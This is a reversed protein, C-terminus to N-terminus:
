RTAQTIAWAKLEDTLPSEDIVNLPNGWLSDIWEGLAKNKLYDRDETGIIRGAQVDLIKILWYGGRSEVTDDRIPASLAGTQTAANFVFNDIAAPLQGKAITGMNGGDDKATGTQSREKAIAAFEEGANLRQIVNQAEEESGLLMGQLDAEETDAAKRVVKIVWYGVNKVAGDDRLAPSLEGSSGQFAFDLPITTTFTDKYIDIAHWGYDGKKSKSYVNVSTEALTAFDGTINSSDAMKARAETAQKETELLVALIHRQDATQPIKPDLYENRLKEALLGTRILDRYVATDPSKTEALKKKVEDTTVTYGLQAANQRILENQQIDRAITNAYYSVYEPRGQTAIKLYEIYYQINFERGNVTFATRHMPLYSSFLWGVAVLLVIAVITIIGAFFIIRQRKQQQQWHTLQRKTMERHPKVIKSKKAM